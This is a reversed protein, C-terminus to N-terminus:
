GDIINTKGCYFIKELKTIKNFYEIMNTHYDMIENFDKELM